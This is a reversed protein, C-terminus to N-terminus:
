IERQREEPSLLLKEMAAGYLAAPNQPDYDPFQEKAWTDLDKCEPACVDRLRPLWQAKVLDGAAPIGSSVSCGAGLFVAFRKDTEKTMVSLRRAFEEASIRRLGKAVTM